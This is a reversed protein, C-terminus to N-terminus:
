SLVTKDVNIRRWAELFACRQAKTPYADSDAGCIYIYIYIHCKTGKGLPDAGGYAGSVHIANGQKKIQAPM